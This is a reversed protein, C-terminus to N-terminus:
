LAEEFIDSLRYEGWSTVGVLDDIKWSGNEFVLEYTIKNQEDFNKFSVVVVAEDGDIEPEGIEFDSLMYDQGAIYPDFDLAGIEGPPTAAADQDYLAQLGESRFVEDDSSYDEAFYPEYFAELLGEPTDFTQSAGVSCLALFLSAAVFVIRM